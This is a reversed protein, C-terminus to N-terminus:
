NAGPMRFTISRFGGSCGASGGPRYTPEFKTRAVITQGNKGFIMAPYSVVPRQRVTSGDATIDFQIRTWGEVGVSVMDMPYDASSTSSSRVRPAADVISCQQETLGTAAYDQQAGAMDRAAARLNARRVLAAAKLMHDKPLAPDDIIRDLIAGNRAKLGPNMEDYGHLRVIALAMPDARYRDEVLEYATQEKRKRYRRHAAEELISDIGLRALAPPQGSDALRLVLPGYRALDDGTSAPNAIIKLAVPLLAMSADGSAQRIQEARAIMALRAAAEGRGADSAGVDAVGASGFRREDLWQNLAANAEALISPGGEGTSCRLELRTVLRFLAPINKVDEARWSWQAVARAFVLAMGGARSGYVPKAYSVSGDDEIGFEVVAVDDPAIGDEGCPPLTMDAGLTFDQKEMRGAGTYVLYNRAADRHGALMAAISADSRAVLDDYSVKLTLGGQGKVAKALVTQAEAFRGLNLLVRGKIAAAQAAVEKPFAPDAALLAEAAVIDLLAQAPDIFTAVQAKGTLVRIQDTPMAADAQAASFHRLAADYDLDAMAIRALAMAGSFRYEALTPDDKPLAPVGQELYLRAEDTRQADILALGKRVRVIALSRPNKAVRGELQTFLAVARAPDGTAAAAADQFLQQTTPVAPKDQGALAPAAILVAGM